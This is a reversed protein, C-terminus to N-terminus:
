KWDGRLAAVKSQLGEPTVTAAPWATDIVLAINSFVGRPYRMAVGGWRSFFSGWLGRLAMPIVPVPTRGIIRTVGKKFPYLDGNDTIRGEPFICVIEGQKLYEDIRDYANELMEPDEKASAIPIAGATRFVFNLVPVKFIRFDYYAM